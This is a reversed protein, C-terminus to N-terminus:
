AGQEQHTTSGHIPREIQKAEAPPVSLFLVVLFWISVVLVIALLFSQLDAFDGLSKDGAELRQENFYEM